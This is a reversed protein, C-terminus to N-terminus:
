GYHIRIINKDELFDRAKWYLRNSFRLAHVIREKFSLLGFEWACRKKYETKYSVIASETPEYSIHAYRSRIQEIVHDTKSRHEIIAKEFMRTIVEPNNREIVTRCATAGMAARAEPNEYLYALARAYTQPYNAVIGTVMHQVQELQGNDKNPTSNVVVPKQWFMAENITNGNCEGIKSSHALVDIAQYFLHVAQQDDTDPLVRVASAHMSKKIRQQRSPPVGMLVFTTKPVRNLLYPIVDLILDSWKNIAPRGIRGVVFHDPPIELKKKYENIVTASVRYRDFEKGNVMNYLVKERKFDFPAGSAVLYRENLHMMSQFFSCTIHRECIPDHKGFVNKEIVVMDKKLAHAGKIIETELRNTHGSRHIHIVDIDWQAIARLIPASTGNGVVYPIGERALENEYWGGENYSAVHPVFINRDLTKAFTVMNRQCGAYSLSSHLELVNIKRHINSDM